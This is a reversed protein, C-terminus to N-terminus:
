LQGVATAKPPKRVLRLVGLKGFIDNWPFRVTGRGSEKHRRALFDRVRECVYEDVAQYAPGCSGHCFYAAWGVLLSNLQDRVEPWQAMNGPVLLDGIRTKIRKLSKRSPSAGQYRRGDKHRFRVGFTYGLFDFSETRADKVSTKAENLTLGLRTMVAKTWALAERRVVAASSSSTTPM